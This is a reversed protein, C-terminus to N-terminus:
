ICIFHLEMECDENVWMRNKTLAGCHNKGPCQPKILTDETWEEIAMPDSNMWMWRDGLYRLGVWVPDTISDRQLANQAQIREEKSVLSGLDTATERCHELAREWTMPPQVVNVSFCYFHLKDDPNRDEWQGNSTMTGRCDKINSDDPAQAWNTYTLTQRHGLWRWNSINHCNRRLGIWGKPDHSGAAALLNNQDIESLVMSLDAHKEQCYERAEWWNKNDRIFVHQGINAEAAAFVVFVYINFAM